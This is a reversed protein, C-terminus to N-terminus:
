LLYLIIEILIYTSYECVGPKAQSSAITAIPGNWLGTGLIKQSKLFRYKSFFFVGLYRFFKVSYYQGM